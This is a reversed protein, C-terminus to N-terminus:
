YSTASASNVETTLIFGLFKTEKKFFSSKSLNLTSHSKELRSLLEELHELHQTSESTILTDDVFSIVHDGIGNLALDLGRVLAATSTKLGFPVVNFEYSRGRYQFATYQKSEEHLPIQWFSSTMDLSSMVKTGKYQQFLVEAPEPCEWDEILIENLKRADLCLRM